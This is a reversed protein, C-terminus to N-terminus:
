KSLGHNLGHAIFKLSIHVISKDIPHQKLYVTSVTINPIKNQYGMTKVM